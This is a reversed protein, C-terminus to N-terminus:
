DPGPYFVFDARDRDEDRLSAANEPVFAITVIRAGPRLQRLAEVTGGAFDIHFRGVVHLVPSGGADLARAISEAMTWDWVSQSRFMADLEETREPTMEKPPDSMSNMVDYFDSRYRGSPLSDPIRFLRKQESSLGGLRDFGDTRAIRVYVRPANAAVVPRGAAKAADVMARHGPPYNLMTRSLARTFQDETTLSSLFDDVAAQEDREFFEMSLTATPSREVVAAWIAAATNLGTTHGHNEGILVVDAAAAASVADALTAPSGDVGRFVPVAEPALRPTEKAKVHSSRPACAGISLGLGLALCLARVATMM